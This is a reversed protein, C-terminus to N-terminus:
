SICTLQESSAVLERNTLIADKNAGAQTAPFGGAFQQAVLGRIENTTDTHKQAAVAGPTGGPFDANNDTMFAQEREFKDLKRRETDRM